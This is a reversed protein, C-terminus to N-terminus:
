TKSTTINKKLVLKLQTVKESNYTVNTLYTVNRVMAMNTVTSHKMYM